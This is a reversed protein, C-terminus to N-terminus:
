EFYSYYCVMEECDAISLVHSVRASLVYENSNFRKSESEAKSESEVSACLKEIQFGGGINESM